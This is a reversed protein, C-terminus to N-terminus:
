ALRCDGQYVTPKARSWRTAYWALRWATWWSLAYTQTLAQHFSRLAFCEARWEEQIGRAHAVEHLLTLLGVGFRYGRISNTLSRCHDPSIYVTDANLYAYGGINSTPLGVALLMRTWTEDDSECWVTVPKAAARTAADTMQPNAINAAAAQGALVFAALVCILSRM